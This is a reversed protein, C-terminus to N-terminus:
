KHALLEPIRAYEKYPFRIRVPAIGARNIVYGTCVDELVSSQFDTSAAILLPLTNASIWYGWGFCYAAAQHSPRLTKDCFQNNIRSQPIQAAKCRGVAVGWYPRKMNGLVTQTMAGMDFTMDDDTKFIGPIGPREQYIWAFAAYIKSPLAEYTDSVPLTLIRTKPDFTPSTVSLDGLIGILEFEPRDMRRLAAHLYAEYKRCGCILLVPKQITQNM